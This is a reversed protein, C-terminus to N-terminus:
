LMKGNLYHIKIYNIYDDTEVEELLKMLSQQQALILTYLYYAYIKKDLFLDSLSYDLLAVQLSYFEDIEEKRPLSEIDPGFLWRDLKWGIPLTAIALAAGVIVPVPM